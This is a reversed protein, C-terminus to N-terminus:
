ISLYGSFCPVKHYSPFSSVAGVRSPESHEDSLASEPQDPKTAPTRPSTM